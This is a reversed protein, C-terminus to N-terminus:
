YVVQAKLWTYNGASLTQGGASLLQVTILDGAVVPMPGTDLNLAVALDDHSVFPAGDWFGNKYIIVTMQGVTFHINATVRIQSVGAPVLIGGGAQLWADTDSVTRNFIIQYLGAPLVIPATIGVHVRARPPGYRVWAYTGNAQRVCSYWEDYRGTAALSVNRGHYEASPTPLDAQVAAFLEIASANSNVVRVTEREQVLSSDSELSRRVRM